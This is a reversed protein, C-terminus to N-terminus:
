HESRAAGVKGAETLLPGNARLRLLLLLDAWGWPMQPHPVWGHCHRPPMQSLPQALSGSIAKEWLATCM